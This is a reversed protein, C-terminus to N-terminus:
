GYSDWKEDINPLSESVLQSAGGKSMTFTRFIQSCYDITYWTHLFDFRIAICTSSVGVLDVALWIYLLLVGLGVM